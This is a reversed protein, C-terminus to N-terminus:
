YAGRLPISLYRQQVGIHAGPTVTHVGFFPGVSVEALLSRPRKETTLEASTGTAWEESIRKKIGELETPTEQAEIDKQASRIFGNIEPESYGQERWEEKMGIIADDISHPCWFQSRHVGFLGAQSGFWQIGMSNSFSNKTNIKM